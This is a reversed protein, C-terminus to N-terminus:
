FGHSKKESCPHEKKEFCLSVSHSTPMFNNSSQVQLQFLFWTGRSTLHPKLRSWLKNQKTKRQKMERQPTLSQGQFTLFHLFHFLSIQPTQPLLALPVVPCGTQNLSQFILPSRLNIVNSGVWKHIHVGKLMLRANHWRSPMQPQNINACSHGYLACTHGSYGRKLCLMNISVPFTAPAPAGRAAATDVADCICTDLIQVRGANEMSKWELGYGPVCDCSILPQHISSFHSILHFKAGSFIYIQGPAVIWM